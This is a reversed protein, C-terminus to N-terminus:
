FHFQKQEHIFLEERAKAILEENYKVYSHEIPIAIQKVEHYYSQYAKPEEVLRQLNREARENKPEFYYMWVRVFTEYKKFFPFIDRRKKRQAVIDLIFRADCEYSTSDENVLIKRKVMCHYNRKLHCKMSRIMEAKDVQDSREVGDDSIKEMSLHLPTIDSLQFYPINVEEALFKPLNLVKEEQFDHKTAPYIKSVFDEIRENAVNHAAKHFSPAEYGVMLYVISRAKRFKINIGMMGNNSITTTVFVTHKSMGDGKLNPFVLTDRSFDLIYGDGVFYSSYKSTRTTYVDRTTIPYSANYVKMQLEIFEIEDNRDYNDFCSSLGIALKMDNKFVDKYEDVLRTNGKKTVNMADINVNVTSGRIPTSKSDPFYATLLMSHKDGKAGDTKAPKTMMRPSVDVHNQNYTVTTSDGFDSLKASQINEGDSNLLV